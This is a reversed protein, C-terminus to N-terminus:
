DNLEAVARDTDPEILRTYYREGRDRAERQRQLWLEALGGADEIQADLARAKEAMTM